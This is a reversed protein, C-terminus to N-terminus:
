LGEENQSLQDDETPMRKSKGKGKSVVPAPEQNEEPGVEPKGGLLKYANKLWSEHEEPTGRYFRPRINCVRGMAIFASESYRDIVDPNISVGDIKM